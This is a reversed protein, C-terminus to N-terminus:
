LRDRAGYEAILLADATALTPKCAPFRRTAENKLARKHATASDKKKPLGIITKQWTQPTVLRYPVGLADLAGVAQGFASGFKFSSAVGQGPMSHVNEVYVMVDDLNHVAEAIVAGIIEDKFPIAYVGDDSIVAIAGNMGVDIGATPKM